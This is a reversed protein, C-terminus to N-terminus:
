RARAPFAAVLRQPRWGHLVVTGALAATLAGAGGVAFALETGGNAALWGALLGGLPMSGNFALYYLGLM